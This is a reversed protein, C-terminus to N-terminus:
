LAHCRADRNDVERLCCIHNCNAGANGVVSIVSVSVARGSPVPKAPDSEARLAAAPASSAPRMGTVANEQQVDILREVYQAVRLGCVAEGRVTEIEEAM